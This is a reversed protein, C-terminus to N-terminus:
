NNDSYTIRYIVGAYDDSVLMSGDPLILIDVPRGFRRRGDDLLWGDAFVEYSVAKDNMIRVLTIRNGNHPVGASRNWSGHEAIFIQGRYEDPFMDGSYFKMGLAAAHAQLEMEAPVFDGIERKSGHEPDAIDRGYFYPYGFHQGKETVHNLEDPPLDDGLWDRGNDTFWLDGTNPDWDFGVSHRVGYVYNEFGTGDTNIRSITAFPLEHLDANSPAGIDFYLMGDPGLGMYKWGHHTDDPLQDYIVVPDPPDDLRDDINDFRIIRNVESIFLSGDKFVVGNPMFLGSAITYVRDASNDKDSDIVAYVMGNRRSRTGVYLVGAPSVAMSRAGQINDAFVEISFGSPLNIRDLQLPPKERQRDQAFSLNNLITSLIIHIGVLLFFRKM